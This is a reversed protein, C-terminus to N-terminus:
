LHGYILQLVINIEGQQCYVYLQITIPVDSQFLNFEWIATIKKRHKSKYITDRYTHRWYKIESHINNMQKIVNVRM